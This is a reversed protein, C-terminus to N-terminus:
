VVSNEVDKPIKSFAGWNVHLKSPLRKQTFHYSKKKTSVRKQGNVTNKPM